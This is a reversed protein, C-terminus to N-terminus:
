SSLNWDVDLISWISSTTTTLDGSQRRRCEPCLWSEKERDYTLDTKYWASGCKQCEACYEKYCDECILDDLGEVYYMHERMCRSDCHRCFTFDGDVSDGFDLECPDCVLLNSRNIYHKGNCRTCPVDAGINFHVSPSMTRFWCYYPVYFSSDTLDNFHLESGDTILDRTRFIRHNMSIYRGNLDLDSYSCPKNSDRPFSTLYDNYWGSWYYCNKNLSTLLTQRAHRLATESFFPYQRGAFMADHNDSMYLWMRWKKSNWPVDEPFRPLKVMEDPKKLYCIVTSSDLLYSLNGARFDGDLAHCSRWHYCNESASLFDRPDVSICFIGSVKDEQILMSARDQLERLIKENDEFYKFAKIVKTGAAINHGSYDFYDRDLKNAFLEEVTCWSLFNALNDNCYNSSISDIFENMRSMKEKKDLELSVMDWEIITKGGWAKIFYQKAQYWRDMLEDIQPEPIGQSYGIIKSVQEKIITIDM